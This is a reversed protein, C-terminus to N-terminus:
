KRVEVPMEPEHAQAPKPVVDTPSPTLEQGLAPHPRDARGTRHTATRDCRPARAAGTSRRCAPSPPDAAEELQPARMVILAAKRRHADIMNRAAGRNDGDTRGARVALLV